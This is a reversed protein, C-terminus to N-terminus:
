SSRWTPHATDLFPTGRATSSRLVKRLATDNLFGWEGGECDIKLFALPGLAKLDSSLCRRRRTPNLHM